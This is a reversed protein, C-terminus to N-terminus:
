LNDFDNKTMIIVFTVKKKDQEHRYIMIINQTIHAHLYGQYPGSRIHGHLRHTFKPSALILEETKTIRKGMGGYNRDYTPAYEITEVDLCKEPKKKKEEKKAEKKKREQEKKAELAKESSSKIDNILEEMRDLNLKINRLNQKLEEIEEELEEPKIGEKIINPISKALDKVSEILESQVSILSGLEATATSDFGMFEDEDKRFRKSLDNNLEELEKADKKVREFHEHKMDKAVQNTTAECQDLSREFRKAPNGSFWGFVM